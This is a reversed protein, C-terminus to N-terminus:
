CVDLDKIDTQVGRPNFLIMVLCPDQYHLLIANILYVFIAANNGM